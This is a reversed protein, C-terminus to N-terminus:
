FDNGIHEGIQIAQGRLLTHDNSRCVIRGDAVAAQSPIRAVWLVPQLVLDAKQSLLVAGRAEPQRCHYFILPPQALTSGLVRRGWLLIELGPSRVTLLIPHKNHVGLVLAGCKTQVLARAVFRATNIGADGGEGGGPEVIDGTRGIAHWDGGNRGVLPVPKAFSDDQLAQMAQFPHAALHGKDAAVGLCGIREIEGDQTSLM